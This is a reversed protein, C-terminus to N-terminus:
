LKQIDSKNIVTINTYEKGNLSVTKGGKLLVSDKEFAGILDVNLLFMFSSIVGARPADNTYAKVEIFRM